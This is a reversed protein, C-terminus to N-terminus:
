AGDDEWYWVVIMEARHPDTSLDNRMAGVSIVMDPNLTNLFDQTEKFFTDTHFYRRYRAKLM